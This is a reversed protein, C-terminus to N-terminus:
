EVCLLMEVKGKIFCLSSIMDDDTESKKRVFCIYDGNCHAEIWQSKCIRM